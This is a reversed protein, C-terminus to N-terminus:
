KSTLIEDGHFYTRRVSDGVLLVVFISVAILHKDSHEVFAKVLIAMQPDTIISDINSRLLQIIFEYGGSATAATTIVRKLENKNISKLVSNEVPGIYELIFSLIEYLGRFFYITTNYLFKLLDIFVSWAAQLFKQSFGWVASLISIILAISM